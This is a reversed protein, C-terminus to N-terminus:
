QYIISYICAGLYTYDVKYILTHIEYGFLKVVAVGYQTTFKSIKRFIFNISLYISSFDDSKFMYNESRSNGVSM